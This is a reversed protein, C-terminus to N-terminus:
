EKSKRGLYHRYSAVENTWERLIDVNSALPPDSSAVIECLSLFEEDRATGLLYDLLADFM